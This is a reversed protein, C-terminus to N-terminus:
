VNSLEGILATVEREFDKGVTGRRTLPEITTALHTKRYSRDTAAMYCLAIFYPPYEVAGAIIERASPGFWVGGLMTVLLGPNLSSLRPTEVATQALSCYDALTKAYPRGDLLREITDLPVRTLRHIKATLIRFESESPSAETRFLSYYYFATCVSLNLAIIPELGLRRTISDTVLRTFVTAPLDGLSAFGTSGAENWLKSLAARLAALQYESQNIIRTTGENNQRKYPRADFVYRPGDRTEIRVVHQFPKVDKLYPPVELVGPLAVGNLTEATPLDRDIYARMLQPTLDKPLLSALITTEYPLQFM